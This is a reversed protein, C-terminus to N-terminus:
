LDRPPRRTELSPDLLYGDDRNVLAGELGLRRLSWVATYVRPQIAEPRIRHGPWGAEFLEHWPIGAGPHALRAEVLADLMRRMPGRRALDVRAGDLSFWEAGAPVLLVRRSGGALLRCARRVDSSVRASLEVQARAPAEVLEGCLLRVALRQHPNELRVALRAAARAAREAPALEGRSRLVAALHARSSVAVWVQDPAARAAASRYASTAEDSEDTRQHSYGLLLWIAAQQPRDRAREHHGLAERLLARGRLADGADTELDGLCGLVIAELRRDGVAGCCALAEGYLERAELTRDLQHHVFALHSLEAAEYRPNKLERHLSLASLHIALAEEVGGLRHTAVGLHSLLIAEQWRNGVSRHLDLAARQHSCAERLRGATALATGLEGLCSGTLGPSRAREASRHAERLVRLAERARGETRLVVGQLLLARTVGAGHGLRRALRLARSLDRRAEVLLGRLRLGEARALLLAEELRAPLGRRALLPDVLATHMSLPGRALLLPHLALAARSALRPDLESFREVVALLNESERALWEVDPDTGAAAPTAGEIRARREALSLTAEAHGLEGRQTLGFDDLRRSAFDRVAESLRHRREPRGDSQVLSRLRLCELRDLAAEEGAGPGAGVGAEADGGVVLLALAAESSFGGRFLSLLALARQEPASLLEWSWRVTAELTRQHLPGASRSGLTALPRSLRELLEEPSFVVLRAAALEIALPLRDLKEVIRRALAPTPRPAAPHLAEATALLLEVADDAPLPGIEVRTEGAIGIPERSTVVLVHPSEALLAELVPRAPKAIQELNDLLLSAEPRAAIARLLSDEDRRDSRGTRRDREAPELRLASALGRLLDRRSRAETLDCLWAGGRPAPRSHLLNRALHTKGVGGTGWLTVLRAGRDLLEGLLAREAKRGILTSLLQGEDM